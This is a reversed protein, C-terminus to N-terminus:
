SKALMLLALEGYIRLNPDGSSIWIELSSQRVKDRRTRLRRLYEKIWSIWDISGKYKQSAEKLYNGYARLVFDRQVDDPGLEAIVGYMSCKQQFYDDESQESSADWDSLLAVFDHFMQQWEETQREKETFEHREPGPAFRLGQARTLIDLAKPSAWFKSDTAKPGVTGPQLDDLTIATSLDKNLEDLGIPFKPQGKDLWGSDACIDGSFNRTLFGRIANAMDKSPLGETKLKLLIGHLNRVFLDRDLAFAFSRPDSSVHDIADVLVASTRAFSDGSLNAKSVIKVASMFQPLTKVKALQDLLFQVDLADAKEDATFGQAFVALVAQYYADFNYVLADDCTLPSLKPLTVEDFMSRARQRDLPLMRVVAVSQISLRDLGLEFAIQKYGSHTDVARGVSRRDVLERSKTAATFANHLLEIKRERDAILSSASLQLLVDSSIEPSANAALAILTELRENPAAVKQSNPSLSTRRDDSKDKMPSQAACTVWFFCTVVLVVRKRIYKMAADPNFAVKLTARNIGSTERPFLGPRRRADRRHLRRKM